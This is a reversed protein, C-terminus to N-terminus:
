KQMSAAHVVHLRYILLSKKLFQVSLYILIQLYLLLILRASANKRFQFSTITSEFQPKEGVYLHLLINLKM